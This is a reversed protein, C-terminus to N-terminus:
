EAQTHAVDRRDDTAALLASSASRRRVSRRDDGSDGGLVGPRRDITWRTTADGHESGTASSSLEAPPSITEGIAKTSM